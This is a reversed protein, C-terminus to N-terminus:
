RCSASPAPRWVQDDDEQREFQKGDRQVHQRGKGAWTQFRFFGPELVEQQAGERGSEDDVADRQDEARGAGGIQSLDNRGRRNPNRVM